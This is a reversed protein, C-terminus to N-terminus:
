LPIHKKSTFASSPNKISIPEKTFDPEEGFRENLKKLTLDLKQSILSDVKPKSQEKNMKKM